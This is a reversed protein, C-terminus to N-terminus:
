LDLQAGLLLARRHFLHVQGDGVHSLGRALRLGAGLLRQVGDGLQAGHGLAQQPDNLRPDGSSMGCSGKLYKLISARSSSSCNLLPTRSRSFPCLVASVVWFIRRTACVSFPAARTTFCVAIASWEWAISSSSCGKRSAVVRTGSGMMPCSSCRRSPM